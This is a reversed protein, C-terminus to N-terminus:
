ICFFLRNITSGIGVSKFEIVRTQRDIFTNPAQSSGNNILLDIRRRGSSLYDSEELEFHCFPLISRGRVAVVPGLKGTELNPICCTLRAQYDNVDLPAFKIKFVQSAGVAISGTDPEIMFPVYGVDTMVSPPSRVSSVSDNRPVDSINTNETFFNPDNDADKKKM